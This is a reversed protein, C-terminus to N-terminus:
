GPIRWIARAGKFFLAEQTQNVILQSGLKIEDSDHKCVLWEDSKADYKIVDLIAMIGGRNSRCISRHRAGQQSLM